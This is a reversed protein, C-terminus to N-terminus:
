AYFPSYLAWTAVGAAQILSRSDVRENRCNRFSRDHAQGLQPAPCEKRELLQLEGEPRFTFERHFSGCQRRRLTAWFRAINNFHGPIRDGANDSAKANEGFDVEVTFSNHLTV